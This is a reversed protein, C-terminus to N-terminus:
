PHVAMVENIRTLKTATLAFVDVEGKCNEPGTSLVGYVVLKSRDPILFQLGGGSDGGCLAGQANDTCFTEYEDVYPVNSKCQSKPAIQMGIEMLTELYDPHPANPPNPILGWGASALALQKPPSGDEPKPLTGTDHLKNFTARM